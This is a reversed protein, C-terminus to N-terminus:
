REPSSWFLALQGDPVGRRRRRAAAPMAPGLNEWRPRQVSAAEGEGIASGAATPSNVVEGAVVLGAHMPPAAGVVAAAAPPEEMPAAAAMGDIAGQRDVDVTTAAMGDIFARLDDDLAQGSDVSAAADVHETVEVGDGALAARVEAYERLVGEYEEAGDWPRNLQRALSAVQQRLSVVEARARDRAQDLGRLKADVSAFVGAASSYSIADAAVAALRGTASRFAVQVEAKVGGWGPRAAAVLLFGRYRGVEVEGGGDRREAERAVREALAHLAAGAQERDSLVQEAAPAGGLAARFPQGASRDRVACAEALFAAGREARALRDPMGALSRQMAVQDAAWRARRRELRTKRAELEVFRIVRPDGTAIAKIEAASLVVDGVDEVVREGIKGAMLQDIFGAKTELIQWVYADFSGRTVYQFIQVSPHRNGQRLIRGNRQEVDGPRWPADLHHLAYLREQVNVGAGLKATSGILVRVAGANMAAFLADRRAPTTAEHIFAVEGTPVGAAALKRRIEHYVRGWLREEAATEVVTAPTADDDAGAAAAVAAPDLGKPTAIDCFIAQTWRDPRGDEAPTRRNSERYIAAVNAVLANIKCGPEEPGPRVLRTDLAALRGESTIVLMNDQAPTVARARIAEARRALDRVIEDLRDSGDVAVVQM